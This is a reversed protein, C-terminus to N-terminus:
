QRRERAVGGEDLLTDYTRPLSRLYPGFDTLRGDADGDRLESGEETLLRALCRLWPSATRPAATDAEPAPYTVPLNSGDLALGAPLRILLEGQAIAESARM